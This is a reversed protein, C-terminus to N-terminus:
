DENKGEKDNIVENLRNLLTKYQEHNIISKEYVDIIQKHTSIIFSKYTQELNEKSRYKNLNIVKKSM